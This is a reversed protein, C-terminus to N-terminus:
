IWSEISQMRSVRVTHMSLAPRVKRPVMPTSVVGSKTPRYHATESSDSILEAEFRREVAEEPRETLSDDYSSISGRLHGGSAEAAKSYCSRVGGVAM